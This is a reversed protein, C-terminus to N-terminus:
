DGDWIACAGVLLDNKSSNALTEIISYNWVDSGPKCLEKIAEIPSYILDWVSLKFLAAEREADTLKAVQETCWYVSSYPYLGNEYSITYHSLAIHVHELTFLNDSM